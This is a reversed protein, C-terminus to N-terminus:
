YQSATIDHALLIYYSAVYMMETFVTIYTVCGFNVMYSVWKWQFLFYATMIM